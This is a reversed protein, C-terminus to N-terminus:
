SSVSDPIQVTLENDQLDLTELKLDTICYSLAGSFRIKSLNIQTLNELKCIGEPIQGSFNNGSLSTLQQLASLANGGMRVYNLSECDGYTESINGSFRNKFIVIRNLKKKYCLFPPLEGSFITQQFM